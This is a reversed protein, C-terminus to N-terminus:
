NQKDYEQQVLKGLWGPEKSQVWKAIEAPVRASIKPQGDGNGGSRPRGPPRKAGGLIVQEVRGDEWEVSVSGDWFAAQTGALVRAKLCDLVGDLSDENGHWREPAIGLEAHEEKTFDRYLTASYQM